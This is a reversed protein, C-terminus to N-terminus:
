LRLGSRTAPTTTLEVTSVKAASGTSTHTAIRMAPQGPSASRRYIRRMTWNTCARLLSEGVAVSQLPLGRFHPAGVFIKVGDFNRGFIKPMIM